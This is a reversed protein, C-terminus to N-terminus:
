FPPDPWCGDETAPCIDSDDASYGEGVIYLASARGCEAVVIAEGHIGIDARYTISPVCLDVGGLKNYGYMIANLSNEWGYFEWQIGETAQRAAEFEPALWEADADGDKGLERIEAWREKTMADLGTQIAMVIREGQATLTKRDITKTTMKKEEKTQEEREATATRDNAIAIPACGSM